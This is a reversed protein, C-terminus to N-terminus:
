TWSLPNDDALHEWGDSDNDVRHHELLNVPKPLAHEPGPSDEDPGPSEADRERTSCTLYTSPPAAAFCPRSRRM